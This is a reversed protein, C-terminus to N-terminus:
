RNTTGISSEYISEAAHRKRKLSAHQMTLHDAISCRESSGSTILCRAAMQAERIRPADARNPAQSTPRRSKQRCRRHGSQAFVTIQACSVVLASLGVLIRHSTAFRQRLCLRRKNNM